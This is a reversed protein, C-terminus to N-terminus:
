ELAGQMGIGLCQERGYRNGREVVPFFANDHLALNGGGDIGWLGAAERGAARISSLAAVLLLGFQPIHSVTM